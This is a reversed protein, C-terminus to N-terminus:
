RLCQMRKSELGRRWRRLTAGADSVPRGHTLRQSREPLDSRTQELRIFTMIGASSGAITRCPLIGHYEQILDPSSLLVQSASYVLAADRPGSPASVLADMGWRRGSAGLGSFLARNM